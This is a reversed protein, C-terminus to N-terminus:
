QAQITFSFKSGKGWESEGWIKGGHMEIIDKCISLGLGTGQYKKTMVAEAQKFPEFIKELDKEKIGIGTDEVSIEIMNESESKGLVKKAKVIIHGGKPTFKVANSFLNV